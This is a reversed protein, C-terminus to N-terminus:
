QRRHAQLEGEPAMIKEAMQQAQTATDILAQVRKEVEGFSTAKAELGTLRGAVEDLQRVANATRKDVEEFSKGLQALKVSRTSLQTLMASLASREERAGAILAALDDAQKQQAKGNGALGKIADLM